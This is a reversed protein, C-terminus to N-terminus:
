VYPNRYLCSANPDDAKARAATAPDIDVIQEVPGDVEVVAKPLYLLVKQVEDLRPVWIRSNNIQLITMIMCIIVTIRDDDVGAM